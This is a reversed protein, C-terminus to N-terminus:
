LEKKLETFMDSFETYCPIDLGGQSSNILFQRVHAVTVQKTELSIQVNLLLSAFKARIKELNFRLM